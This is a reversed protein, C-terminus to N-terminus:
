ASNMSPKSNPKPVGFAAPLGASTSPREDFMSTPKNGQRLHSQIDEIEGASFKKTSTLPREEDGSIASPHIMAQTTDATTQTDNLWDCADIHDLVEDKETFLLIECCNEPDNLNGAARKIQGRFITNAPSDLCIEVLRAGRFSHIRSKNYNWLRIMSITHPRELDIEITHDQGLTFPAM